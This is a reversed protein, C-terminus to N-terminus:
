SKRSAGNRPLIVEGNLKALKMPMLQGLFIWEKNLTNEKQWITQSLEPKQPFHAIKGESIMSGADMFLLQNGEMSLTTSECTKLVFYAM